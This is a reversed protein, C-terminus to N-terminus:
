NSYYLLLIQHKLQISFLNDQYFILDVLLNGVILEKSELSIKDVKM